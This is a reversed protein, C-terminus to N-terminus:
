NWPQHLTKEGVHYFLHFGAYYYPTNGKYFNLYFVLIKVPTTLTLYAFIVLLLMTYVQRESTKSKTEQGETQCQGESLTSNQRSRMRLTHIIVSNMTLLSVFPLIFSIVESLWYYLEGYINVSAIRSSICIRGNNSSIFLYPIYYSFSFIVICVITIKTYFEACLLRAFLLVM